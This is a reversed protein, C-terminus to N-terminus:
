HLKKLEALIHADTPREWPKTSSYFWRAKGSKDILVTTPHPIGHVPGRGEPLNLIGFSKTATLNRDSLFRFSAPAKIENILQSTQAAIDPSILLM